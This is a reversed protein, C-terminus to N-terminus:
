PSSEQERIEVAWMFQSLQRSGNKLTLVQEQYSISRKTLITDRIYFKDKLMKQRICSFGAFSFTLHEADKDTRGTIVADPVPCDSDGASSKVAKYGTDGEQWRSGRSLNRPLLPFSLNVWGAAEKELYAQVAPTSKEGMLKELVATMGPFSVHETTLSVVATLSRRHLHALILALVQDKLSRSYTYSGDETISHIDSRLSDNWVETRLFEIRDLKKSIYERDELPVEAQEGSSDYYKLSEFSPTVKLVVSRNEDSFGIFEYKVSLTFTLPSILFGNEDTTLGATKDNGDKGPPVQGNDPGPKGAQKAIDQELAPAGEWKAKRELIFTLPTEFGPAICRQMEDEGYLPLFASVALIISVTRLGAHM